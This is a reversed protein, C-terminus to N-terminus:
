KEFLEYYGGIIFPSNRTASFNKANEQPLYRSFPMVRFDFSMRTKGTTNVKNGHLCRNGNFIAYEGYKMEMPHFDKLGPVSEVWTCNTKFMDTIAIQFNIEWFPHRHDEDADYHWYHIAQEEPLHARFTPTKQYVFDEDFYPAVENAIFKEYPESILDLNNYFKEHIVTKSENDFELKYNPILDKREVHFNSLDNVKFIDEVIDCFSYEKIDYCGKKCTM